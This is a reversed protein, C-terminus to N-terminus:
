GPTVGAVHLPQGGGVGGVVGVADAHMVVGARRGGRRGGPVDGVGAICVIAPVVQRRDLDVIVAHLARQRHADRLEAVQSRVTEVRGDRLVEGPAVVVGDLLVGGPEGLADVDRLVEAVHAQDDHPVDIEGVPILVVRECAVGDQPGIAGARGTR